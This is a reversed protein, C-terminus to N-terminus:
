VVSKRDQEALHHPVEDFVQATEHGAPFTLRESDAGVRADGLEGNRPRAVPRAHDAVEDVVPLVQHVPARKEATAVRPPVRLPPLRSSQRHVRRRQSRRVTTTAHANEEFQTKKKCRRAPLQKKKKKFTKTQWALATNQVTSRFPGPSKSSPLATFTALDSSLNQKGAFTYIPSHLFHM